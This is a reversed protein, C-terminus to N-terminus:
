LLKIQRVWLTYPYVRLTNVRLVLMRFLKAIDKYYFINNIQAMAWDILAVREGMTMLEFGTRPLHFSLDQTYCEENCLTFYICMIYIPKNDLCLHCALTIVLAQTSEIRVSILFGM